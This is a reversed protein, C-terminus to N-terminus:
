RKEDLKNGLNLDKNYKTINKMVLKKKKAIIKDMQSLKCSYVDEIFCHFILKSIMIVVISIIICVVFEAIRGVVNFNEIFVFSRYEVFKVIFEIVFIFLDMTALIISASTTIICAIYLIKWILNFTITFYFNFNNRENDYYEYVDNILVKVLDEENDEEILHHVYPPVYDDEYRVINSIYKRWNRGDISKKYDTMFPLLVKNHYERLRKKTPSSYIKYVTVLGTIAAVIATIFDSFNEM